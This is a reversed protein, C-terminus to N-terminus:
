FIIYLIFLILLYAKPHECINNSSTHHPAIKEGYTKSAVQKPRYDETAMCINESTNEYSFTAKLFYLATLSWKTRTNSSLPQLHRSHTQLKACKLHKALDQQWDRWRREKAGKFDREKGTRILCVDYTILCAWTQLFFWLFTFCHFSASLLRFPAETSPFASILILILNIEDLGGSLQSLGLYNCFAYHM